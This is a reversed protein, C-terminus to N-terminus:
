AHWRLRELKDVQARALDVAAADAGDLMRADGLLEAFCVLPEECHRGPSLCGVEGVGLAGRQREGLGRGPEAIPRVRYRVLDPVLGGAMVVLLRKRGQDEVDSADVDPVAEVDGGPLYRSMEVLVEKPGPEPVPRDELRIEHPAYM